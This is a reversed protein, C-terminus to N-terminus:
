LDLVLRPSRSRSCCPLFQDNCAQEQPSLYLDRHDPEGSIVRTLCTGCIGQECSVPVDVGAKHLAQIITQDSPVTVVLRSQALEVEFAAGDASLAPPTAAFYEYHLRGADWGSARAQELVADMFGQPGCVYLHLDASPSGLLGPLDIRQEPGLNDFHLRARDAWASSEIRDLFAARDRSRSCYHFSFPEGQSSLYDAMCLLPTLGIGGAILLHTAKGQALPFHNRPASIRLTAGEPLADHMGISGGRSAPDRLVAIQYRHREWPANCLSYQRVPGGPVQVDIHAGAEFGPLDAGDPSVLEFSVIGDAEIRRREVRVAITTNSM